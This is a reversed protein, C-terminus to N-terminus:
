RGATRPSRRRCRATRTRAAALSLGARQRPTRSRAPGQGRHLRNQTASAPPEEATRPPSSCRLRRPTHGDSLSEDHHEGFAEAISHSVPPDSAADADPRPEVDFHATTVAHVFPLDHHVRYSRDLERVHSMIQRALRTEVTRLVQQLRRLVAAAVVNIQNPEVIEAQASPLHLPVAAGEVLIASVFGFCRFALGPRM